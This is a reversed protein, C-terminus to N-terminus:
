DITINDIKGEKITFVTRHGVESKDIAFYSDKVKILETYDSLFAELENENLGSALEKSLLETAFGFHRGKVYYFFKCMLDDPENKHEQSYVFYRKGLKLAYEREGIKCSLAIAANNIVSHGMLKVTYPMFRVDLPLVTLHVVASSSTIFRDGEFFNGDILYVSEVEPLLMINIDMNM